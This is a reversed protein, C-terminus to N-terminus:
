SSEADEELSQEGTLTARSQPPGASANITKEPVEDERMDRVFPDKGDGIRTARIGNGRKSKKLENKLNKRALANVNFVKTPEGPQNPDFHVLVNTEQQFGADKIGKLQSVILPSLANDSAFYFMITWESPSTIQAM